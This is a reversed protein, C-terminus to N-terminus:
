LFRVVTATGKMFPFRINFPTYTFSNEGIGGNLTNMWVIRITSYRAWFPLGYIDYYREIPRENSEVLAYVARFAIGLVYQRLLPNYEYSYFRFWNRRTNWWASQGESSAPTLLEMYEPQDANRPFLAAGNIAVLEGNGFKLFHFGNFTRLLPKKAAARPGGRVGGAGEQQGVKEACVSICSLLLLLLVVFLSHSM